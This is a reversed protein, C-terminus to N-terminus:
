YFSSRRWAGQEEREPPSSLMASRGDEWRGDDEGSDGGEEESRGNESIEATGRAGNPRRLGAMTDDEDEQGKRFTSAKKLTM